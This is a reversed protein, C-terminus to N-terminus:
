SESLLEQWEGKLDTRLTRRARSLLSEVAEDSIGMQKGVEAQTLGEYHFLVLGLCQRDPLAKLASDVRSAVEDAELARLQTPAEPQDPPEEVVDTRGGARMRDIALNTVVRRLWPRVGAEGIELKGGQRWLRLLAEQAVDEAEADDRLLRRGVALATSLHRAALTRFAQPDGRSSRALLQADSLSDGAGGAPGTGDRTGGGHM